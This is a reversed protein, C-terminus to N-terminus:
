QDDSKSQRDLATRRVVTTIARDIKELRVIIKFGIFFLAIISIYVLLDAGREVGVFQALRDTKHPFVVALAVLFWFVLWLTLERGTVDSSRYRIIIRSCVYLIFIFLAIQIIM